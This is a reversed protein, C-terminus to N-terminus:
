NEKKPPDLIVDGGGRQLEAQSAAVADSSLTVTDSQLTQTGTNQAVPQAQQQLTTYAQAQIQSNANVQM